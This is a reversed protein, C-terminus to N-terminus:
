RCRSRVSLTTKSPFVCAGCESRSPRPDPDFLPVRAGPGPLVGAILLRGVDIEALSALLAALASPLIVMALGGTGLIPGMHKKYGRSTMEPVMM